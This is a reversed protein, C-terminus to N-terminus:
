KLPFYQQTGQSVASNNARLMKLKGILVPWMRLEAGWPKGVWDRCKLPLWTTERPQCSQNLKRVQHSQAHPFNFACKQMM